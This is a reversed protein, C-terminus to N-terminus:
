PMRLSYFPPSLLATLEAPIFNTLVSLRTMFRLEPM